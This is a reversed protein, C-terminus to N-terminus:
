KKYLVEIQEIYDKAEKESYHDKIYAEVDKQSSAYFAPVFNIVDRGDVHSMFYVEGATGVYPKFDRQGRAKDRKARQRAVNGCKTSCYIKNRRGPFRTGCVPCVHLVELKRHPEHWGIKEKHAKLKEEEEGGREMIGGLKDADEYGSKGYRRVEQSSGKTEYLVNIDARRGRRLLEENDIVIEDGEYTVKAM